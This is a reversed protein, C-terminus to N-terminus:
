SKLDLIPTDDFADIGNITIIGGKVSLIKCRTIAILNPRVPSHTAFVGTLPNSKNGGPHVKLIKRREPTDNKHFWWLVTVHSCHEMRHLAPLYKKYIELQVPKGKKNHVKGIPSVKYVTDVNHSFKDDGKAEGDPTGLVGCAALTASTGM